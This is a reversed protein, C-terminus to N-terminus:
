QPKYLRYTNPKSRLGDETVIFVRIDIYPNGFFARCYQKTMMNGNITYDTFNYSYYGDGDEYLIDFELNDVTENKPNNFDISFTFGTGTFGSTTTCDDIQTYSTTVSNIVINNWELDMDDKKCSSLALVAVMGLSFLIQKKM